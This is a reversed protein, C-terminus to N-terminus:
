LRQVACAYTKVADEPEPREVAGSTHLALWVADASVSDVRHRLHRPLVLYSGATLKLSSVITKTDRQKETNVAPSAADKRRTSGDDTQAELDAASSTATPTAPVASPAVASSDSKQAASDSKQVGEFSATSSPSSAMKTEVLLVAEGRLLAVWEDDDQDYWEGFPTAM